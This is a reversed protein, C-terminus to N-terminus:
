KIPTLSKVIAIAESDSVGTGFFHYFRAADKSQKRKLRLWDSLYYISKTKIGKTHPKFVNIKFPGFQNSHGSITRSGAPGKVIGSYATEITFSSRKKANFVARYEVHKQDKDPVRIYKLKFRAPVYTPYLFTVGASKARTVRRLQKERIPIKKNDVTTMYVIKDVPNAAPAAILKQVSSAAPTEAPKSVPIAAPKEVAKEVAKDAAIAVSCTMLFVVAFLSISHKLVLRVGNAQFLRKADNAWQRTEM